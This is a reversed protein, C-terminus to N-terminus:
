RAAQAQGPSLAPSPTKSLTRRGEPILQSLAPAPAGAPAEAPTGAPAAVPAEGVPQAPAAPAGGAPAESRTQLLATPTMGLAETVAALKMGVRTVPKGDIRYGVKDAVPLGAAEVWARFEGLETGDPILGAAAASDLVIDLHLGARGAFEADSLDRIVLWLLETGRDTEDQEQGQVDDQVDDQVDEAAPPAAVMWAAVMWALGAGTIILYHFSETRAWWQGAAPSLLRWAAGLAGAALAGGLGLVGLAELAPRRVLAVPPATVESLDDDQDDDQDNGRRAKRAKQQAATDAEAQRTATAEPDTSAADWALRVGHVACGCLKGTLVMSGNILATLATGIGTM